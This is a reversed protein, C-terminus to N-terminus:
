LQAASHLPDSATKTVAGSQSNVLRVAGGDQIRYVRDAVDLVASQHSVALITMDGVLQQLTSCIAAETPPDLATTAEDLILLAPRHVLARALMIRQRQGGSLRTGREGVFTHIGDPMRTIFEWADAARLAYEAETPGLAPDGLTVNMFVTDHLLLNDQPVYGIQHRWHRLDLKAMPVNDIYVEGAQPQLLGTVLDVVTTKGAGSPGVLATFTGVPVELSLNTLVSEDHYAVHIGELTIRSELRTMLGHPSRETAQKAEEITQQLSWFASENTVMKQYEKQVKGLCNLVRVLLLVLVLLTALPVHWYVLAVLIGTATVIAFMPEQMAKLAANSFVTKQLAQNLKGAEAALLSDALDGRAMAKLSKVSQLMDALRASLSTMLATQRKGARRSMNVLFHSTVLIALGAGLSALTAQWSVLLAVSTYICTQMLLTVVAIGKVYAASSRMPESAMANALRGVPQRVFYEWRAALVSRLLALRLDTTVQAVMYGVRKQAFLTLLSKLTIAAVIVALLVHITPDIGLAHLVSTATEEFGSGQDTRTATLPTALGTEQGIVVSLLPLLASVSIGDAVGAFLLAILTMVTQWPYARAFTLLLRM